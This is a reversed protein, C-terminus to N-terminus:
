GAREARELRGSRATPGPRSARGARAARASWAALLATGAALGPAVAPDPVIIRMRLETVRFFANASKPDHAIGGGLLVVNRLFGSSAVDGGMRTFFMGQAFSRPQVNPAFPTGLATTADLFPFFDSGSLTGTTMRFGIIKEPPAPVPDTGCANGPGTIPVFPGRFGPLGMFTRGPGVTGVGNTCGATATVAGRANLRAFIRPGNQEALSQLVFNAGGAPEDFMGTRWAREVVAFAMPTAPPELVRWITSRQNRLLRLTGGFHSHSENQISLRIGRRGPGAATYRTCSWNGVPAMATGPLPVLPSPSLPPCFSIATGMGTANCGPGPCFALAGGGNMFTAAPQVSQHTKTSQAIGPFDPFDRFLGGQFNLRNPGLTLKRGVATQGATGTAAITRVGATPPHPGFKKGFAGPGADFFSPQAVDPYLVGLSGVMTRTVAAAPGVAGLLCLSALTSAARRPTRLRPKM